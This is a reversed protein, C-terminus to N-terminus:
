QAAGSSAAGPLALAFRGDDILRTGPPWDVAVPRGPQAQPLPVFAPEGDREVYAGLRGDRQQVYAPPLYPTISRWRLEGALGPALAAAGHMVVERVQGAAEVVPSVRHLRLAHSQGGAHLTWGAAVRLAEIHDVPVQARVEADASAALRLLPTGPAALDGVNALRERVVGAYPARVVSRALALRAAALAARAADRESRLVGLETERVRLGDASVFGRAALARSQQLQAEALRIRNDVLGLQARARDVEIRSAADDLRVLVAGRAVSEGARVPMALIRGMVEAALSAEDRAVVTAPARFEPYVALEALARSTWDAAAAAVPFLVLLVPLIKM